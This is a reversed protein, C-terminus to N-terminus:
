ELAGPDLMPGSDDYYGPGHGPKKPTHMDILENGLSAIASGVNHYRHGHPFTSSLEVLHKGIEVERKEEPNSQDTEDHDELLTDVIARANM